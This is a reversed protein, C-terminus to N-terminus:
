KPVRPGSQGSDPSWFQAAFMNSADGDDTHCQLAADFQQTSKSRPDKDVYLWILSVRTLSSVLRNVPAVTWDLLMMPSVHDYTVSM